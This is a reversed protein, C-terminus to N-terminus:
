GRIQTLTPALAGLLFLAVAVAAAPPSGTFTYYAFLVAVQLLMGWTFWFTAAPLRFGLREGPSDIAGALLILGAACGAALGAAALPGARWFLWLGAATVLALAPRALAHRNPLGAVVGILGLAADSTLLAAVAPFALGTKVQALGLNGSILHFVALGPGVAALALAGLRPVGREPPTRDRALWLSAVVLAAVVAVTLEDAAPGPLWPLDLGRRPVRLVLDLWLGLALGLAAERRRTLILALALWGWTVVGAAGLLLRAAPAASFQIGLRALGLLLAAALILVGPGLLRLLPGALAIALIVVLVSGAIQMRQSQDLVFVLYSVFVRMAELMLLSGGAMALVGALWAGEIAGVTTRAPARGALAM